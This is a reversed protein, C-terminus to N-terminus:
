TFCVIAFFNFILILLTLRGLTLLEITARVCITNFNPGKIVFVLPILIVNLQYGRKILRTFVCYLYNQSIKLGAEARGQFWLTIGM